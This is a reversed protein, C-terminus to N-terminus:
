SSPKTEAEAAYCDRLLRRLWKCAPDRHTREHWIVRYPFSAVSAPLVHVLLGAASAMRQAIRLPVGMVVDTSALILPASTFHPTRLVVPAVVGFESLVGDAVLRNGETFMLVAQPYRSLEKAVNKGLKKKALPHGSRMICAYTDFFLHRFHFDLPLAVDTYLAVDLEGSEVKKLTDVHFPSVDIQALPASRVFRPMMDAIVTAAGYDTSGVRFVRETSAPDFVPPSFVADISALIETVRPRLLAAHSTLSYGKRTRVLVPDRLVRRLRGLARSAAPQSMSLHEATQTVSATELISALLRLTKVDLSDVGAHAEHMDTISAADNHAHLDLRWLEEMFLCM